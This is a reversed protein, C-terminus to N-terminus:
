AFIKQKLPHFDDVDRHPNYFMLTPVEFKIPYDFRNKNQKKKSTINNNLFNDFSIKTFQYIIKMLFEIQKMRSLYKTDM